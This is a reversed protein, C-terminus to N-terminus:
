RVIGMNKALEAPVPVPGNLERTLRSETVIEQDAKELKAIEGAVINMVEGWRMMQKFTIPRRVELGDKGNVVIRCVRETGVTDTSDYEVKIDRSIEEIVKM